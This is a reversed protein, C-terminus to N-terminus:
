PLPQNRYRPSEYQINGGQDVLVSKMHGSYMHATGDDSWMVNYGQRKLRSVQALQASSANLGPKGAANRLMLWLVIVIFAGFLVNLVSM